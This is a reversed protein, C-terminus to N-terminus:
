IFNVKNRTKMSYRWVANRKGFSDIPSQKPQYVNIPPKIYSVKRFQAFMDAVKKLYEEGGNEGFMVDEDFAIIIECDVPTNRIIFDRQIRSLSHNGLAVSYGKGRNLTFHKLVSKEGEFLILKGKEEMYKKAEQFGYLNNSKSFGDIYNWYKPIGLLKATESDLVTRGQVGVINDENNWDYHPFIIRDREPDYCINFQKIVEPSIGEEILSKHPLSIFRNLYDSNYTKNTKSPTKMGDRAMQKYESILDTIQGINSANGIGFLSKAYAFAIHFNWDKIRQIVGILDGNFDLSFMTSSLNENLIVRLSTNNSHEPLAGRITDEKEYWLDHFGIDELIKIVRDSDKLLYEKFEKIDSKGLVESNNERKTRLFPCM